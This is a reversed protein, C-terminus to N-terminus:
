KQLQLLVGLLASIAAISTIVTQIWFRRTEIRRLEKEREQMEKEAYFNALEERQKQEAQEIKRNLMERHYNAM